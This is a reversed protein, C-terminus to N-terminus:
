FLMQLCSITQVKLVFVIGDIDSKSINQNAFLKELATCALDFATEDPNAIHRNYVGSKEAM